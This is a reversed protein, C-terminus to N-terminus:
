KANEDSEMLGFVNGEPDMVYCMWGVGPVPMKPAVIKGGAATAKEMYEDINPVDVTNVTGKPTEESRKMLGGDIGTEGEEGTSFLWYEMPGDWKQAKWGLTDEYFKALSEPDDASFEFHVPRPM